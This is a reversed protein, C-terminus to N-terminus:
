TTPAIAQCRASLEQDVMANQGAAAAAANLWVVVSHNGKFLRYRM